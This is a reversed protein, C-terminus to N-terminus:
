LRVRSMFHFTIRTLDCILYSFFALPNRAINYAFFLRYRLRYNSKIDFLYTKLDAFSYTTQLNIGASTGPPMKVVADYAVILSYGANSARAPLETDGCQQFHRDDYLGVDRFVPTPILTGMGNLVSVEVRHDRSFESLRKGANLWRSKALWRDLREGGYYIRDPDDIPVVVSGILTKRTSQWVAYLRDLYVPDIELDDNIILVADQPSAELLAHRIGANVAGTWWLSGDGRLLCVDPFKAAILESTGDTSGDDVVIATWNRFTQKALCDLFRETLAKRNHVPIVIYIKQPVQLEADNM